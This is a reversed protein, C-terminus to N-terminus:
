RKRRLAWVEMAVVRFREKDHHKPITRILSHAASASPSPSTAGGPPSAPSAGGASHSATATTTLGAGGSWLGGSLPPSLYTECYGSTGHDLDGDCYLAFSGGGGFGIGDFTPALLQFYRNRGSSRYISFHPVASGDTDLNNTSTEETPAAAEKEQYEKLRISASRPDLTIAGNEHRTATAQLAQYRWENFRRRDEFTFVFSSGNGHYSGAAGSTTSVFSSRTSSAGSANGRYSWESHGHGSPALASTATSNYNSVAAGGATWRETAFGGFVAGTNDRILMLTTEEERCRAVLTRLTAGHASLSYVCTWDYGKVSSPLAAELLQLRHRYGALRQQQSGQPSTAATPPFLVESHWLGSSAATNPFAGSAASSSPTASPPSTLAPSQLMSVLSFSSPAASPGASLTAPSAESGSASFVPSSIGIPSVTSTAAAHTAAASTSEPSPILGGHQKHQHHHKNHHHHSASPPPLLKLPSPLALAWAPSGSDAGAAGPSLPSALSPVPSGAATTGTGSPTSQFKLDGFTWPQLPVAMRSGTIPASAGSDRRHSATTASGSATAAHPQQQQSGPNMFAPPTFSPVFPPPSAVVVLDGNEEEDDGNNNTEELLENVAGSSGDGTAAGLPSSLSSTHSPSMAALLPKPAVEKRWLDMAVQLTFSTPSATEAREVTTSGEVVVEAVYPLLLVVDAVACDVCRLLSTATARASRGTMNCARFRAAAITFVLACLKTFLTAVGQEEEDANSSAQAQYLAWLDPTVACPIIPSFAAVDPMTMMGTAEMLGRVCVSAFVTELTAEAPSAASASAEDSSM